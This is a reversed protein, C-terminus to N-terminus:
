VDYLLERLKSNDSRELRWLIAEKLVDLQKETPSHDLIEEKKEAIESRLAEVVYTFM